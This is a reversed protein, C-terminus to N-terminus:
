EQAEPMADASQAQGDGNMASTPVLQDIMAQLEKQLREMEKANSELERNVEDLDIPEEEEFTDVYRPINLNYDNEKIEDLTAVHAYKDVDKRAAYTDIIKQIDEDRLHNQNKGKEFYQSADIFLIDNITRDKRFVLVVTPISTSYFLNSPMGIVADLYNKEIIAKRITGEAAGRFLVGHPLVIAMRGTPKLHYICHEVFAYDAKSKPALKGFPRFRPDKLKAEANDWHQSYPPNAVVADFSHPHDIGNADSGDPWDQELTDANRLDMWQYDVDHMMLNMRALNYTTRNLEQGYFHVHKDAPMTGGNTNELEQRVTLLLSGSGCTPDYVEFDEGPSHVADKEEDSSDDPTFTVLKALVRSVEHPTYFEGAKKGSNGAFQAILYEYVNGLIDHGSEDLFNVEDIREVLDALAKTRAATSNGLSSNMLNIDDFVDRFDRSANANLQANQKFHDFINGFDEPRVQQDKVKRVLTTWTDDPDIAYGLEESLAQHWEDIGEEQVDRAFADNVTEGDNIILLGSDKLFREQKASLYRYFIFGLIYDRFESADMKGRLSNAMAWLQSTLEKAKSEDAKVAASNTLTTEKSDTM